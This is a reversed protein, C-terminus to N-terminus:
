IKLLLLLTELNSMKLLEKLTDVGFYRQRAASFCICDILIHMAKLRHAIRVNDSYQLAGNILLIYGSTCTHWVKCYQGFM